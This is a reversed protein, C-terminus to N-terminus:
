PAEGILGLANWLQVLQAVGRVGMKQMVRARHLEVTRESLSLELAIVKNAQGAVIREAIERERSTLSGLRQM